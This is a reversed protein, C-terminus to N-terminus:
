LGKTIHDNTILAKIPNKLGSIIGAIIVFSNRVIKTHYKTVSVLALRFSANQLFRPIDVNFSNDIKNITSM